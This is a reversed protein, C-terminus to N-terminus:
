EFIGKVWNWFSDTENSEIIKPKEKENVIVIVKEGEKVVNFKSRIEEEIGKETKTKEIQEVLFVEREKIGNLEDQANNLNDRTIKEKKYVNWTAKLFVVILIMLLLLTIRSYLIKYYKKKKIFESM